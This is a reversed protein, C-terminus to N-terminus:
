LFTEHFCAEQTGMWKIPTLHNGTWAVVHNFFPPTVRYIHLVNVYIHLSHLYEGLSSCAECVSPLRHIGNPM